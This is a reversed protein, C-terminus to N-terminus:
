AAVPPKPLPQWHTPDSIQASDPFAVFKPRNGPLYGVFVDLGNWILVSTGDRPATEIPQWLNDVDNM